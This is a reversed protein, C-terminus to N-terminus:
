WGPGVTVWWHGGKDPRQFPYAYYVQMVLYGMVNMRVGTGTSFIPIRDDSRRQFDWTPSSGGTWAVGGDIFGVLETPLYPFNLLGFQETGLLPVRIETNAVLARSGTLREYAPCSSVLISCEDPDFTQVSYGRVLGGYGLYYDQARPSDADSGFRGVFLVRTAWTVPDAFVYNRLDALTSIYQLSGFTPEVEFRVRRGMIPSTFGFYSRDEVLATSAQVFHLPPPSALDVQREAGFDVFYQYVERDYGHRSYGTTLEWRRTTSFPYVVLGYAQDVYIRERVQGIYRAPRSMGDGLDIEDNAVTTYTSLYPVHGVVGGWQLRRRQNLYYAQGGLDKYTGNAFITAALQHDGLMDSFSMFLGGGAGFRDSAFGSSGINVGGSGTIYDMQLSPRYPRVNYAANLRPLGDEPNELYGQVLQPATDSAPPLAGVIGARASSAIPKGGTASAPISHINYAGGEFVTLLLRGGKRGVSLVPSMDTIGHVGTAIRTVRYIQRTALSVRYIDSFGDQNSVFYLSRGDPSYQPDIHKGNSFLNLRRISRDNVNMVAIQMAGYTLRDFDTAPGRDTTLAISQGDPAWTPQMDAYRDNTLRETEGTTLDYVYLDSQGGTIGSFAIKDGDPSWAPNTLEDVGRIRVQRTIDRSEVDLFALENRGKNFVVFVFQEGDPSWSGASDIFRLANFHGEAATSTLKKIREGTRADALFLDISFLSEESIYVVYDGDPSVSPALNMRTGNGERTILSTGVDGPQTRRALEDTYMEQIAAHWEGFLSDQSIGILSDIAASPGRRLSARFLQEVIDDGERGAVYAWFAHGWRYPFYEQMRRTLDRASPLEDRLFADRIWLASQPDNPGVSLYEAMGEIMWLPLRSMSQLGRLGRGQLAIDYQFEHVMEHGMVHDTDAYRGTLPMILRSKLAETVGGTGEGLNSIINTQHFDTQNEYLIIPKRLTFTHNMLGSQRAYWRETMRAVDEIAQAGEPYKDPYFHLDFHDTTMVQFNFTEYTVKNRGFYQAQVPATLFGAVLSVLIFSFGRFM